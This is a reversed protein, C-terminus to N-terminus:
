SYSTVILSNSIELQRFLKDQLEDETMNSDRYEDHQASLKQLITHWVYKRTFQQSICVWAVGDFHNKVIEHNFVQRALTTKGISGM